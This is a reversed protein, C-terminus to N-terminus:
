LRDLFARRAEDIYAKPFLDQLWVAVERRVRGSALAVGSSAELARLFKAWAWCTNSSCNPAFFVRKLAAASICKATEPVSLSLRLV